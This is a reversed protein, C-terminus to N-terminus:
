RGNLVKLLLSKPITFDDTTFQKWHHTIRVTDDQLCIRRIHGDELIQVAKM